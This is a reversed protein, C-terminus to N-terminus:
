IAVTEGTYAEAETFMGQVQGANNTGCRAREYERREEEIMESAERVYAFFTVFHMREMQDHSWGYYKAMRAYIKMPDYPENAQIPRGVLRSRAASALARMDSAADLDYAELERAQREAEDCAEEDWDPM